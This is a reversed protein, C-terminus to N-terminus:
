GPLLRQCTARSTVPHKACVTLLRSPTRLGYTARGRQQIVQKWSAPWPTCRAGYGNLAWGRRAVRGSLMRSITASIRPTVVTEMGGLFDLIEQFDPGFNRAPSLRVGASHTAPPRCCHSWSVSNPLMLLPQVLVILRRPLGGRHFEGFRSLSHQRYSRHGWQLCKRGTHL